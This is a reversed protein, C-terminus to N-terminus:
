QDRRLKLLVAFYKWILARNEETTEYYIKDIGLQTVMPIEKIFYEADRGLIQEEHGKVANCFADHPDAVLKFMAVKPKVQHEPALTDMQTVMDDFVTEWDM